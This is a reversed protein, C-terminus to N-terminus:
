RFLAETLSLFRLRPWQSQLCHKWAWYSSPKCRRPIARQLHRNCWHKTEKEHSTGSWLEGIAEVL